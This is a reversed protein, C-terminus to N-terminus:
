AQPFIPEEAGARAALDEMERASLPRFREAAECAWRFHRASGPSVVATLPLTLAFRLGLEAQDADEVPAYWTKHGERDENERWPRKALAKLGLAGLGKTMAAELVAPGFGGKHWCIWNWPFLVTDFNFGYMLAMAAAETHASFGLFRVLGERRARVFAELAGGPGLIQAVEDQTTVAHLQYLDLRDTRLRRLSQELEERAGDRDRRGTKCALFISNRYPELAPGLREEADGYSPAVDFYNVGREVAEAVLRDAAAQEEGM